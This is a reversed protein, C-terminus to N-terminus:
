IMNQIIAEVEEDTTPQRSENKETEELQQLELKM